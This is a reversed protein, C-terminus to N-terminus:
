QTWSIVGGSWPPYSAAGGFWLALEVAGSSNPASDATGGLWRGKGTAVGLGIVWFLPLPRMWTLVDIALGQTWPHYCSVGRAGWASCIKGQCLSGTFDLLSSWKSPPCVGVWPYLSWLCDHLCSVKFPFYYHELLQSFFHLDTFQMVFIIKFFNPSSFSM